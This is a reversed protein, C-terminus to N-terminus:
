RGSTTLYPPNAIRGVSGEAGRACGGDDGPTIGADGRGGRQGSECSKGGVQRQHLLLASQNDALVYSQARYRGTAALYLNVCPFTFYIYCFFLLM